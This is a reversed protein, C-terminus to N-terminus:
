KAVASMARRDKGLQVVFRSTVISKAEIACRERSWHPNTKQLEAAVAAVEPRREAPDM